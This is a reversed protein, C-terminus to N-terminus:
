MQFKWFSFATQMKQKTRDLYFSILKGLHETKKAYAEYDTKKLKTITKWKLFAVPISNMYVKTLLKVLIGSKKM